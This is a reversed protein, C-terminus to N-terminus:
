RPVQSAAGSAAAAQRNRAVQIGAEIRRQIVDTSSSQLSPVLSRCYSDAPLSKAKELQMASVRAAMEKARATVPGSMDVGAAQAVRAVAETARLEYLGMERSLDAATSPVAASCYEVIAKMGMIQGAVALEQMTSQASAGCPALVLAIISFQKFRM